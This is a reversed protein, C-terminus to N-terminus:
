GDRQGAHRRLFPLLHALVEEPAEEAQLHGADIPAGDVADAWNRWIDIPTEGSTFRSQEWTVFVPCQLRRGAKRDAADHESDITAGARYDNFVASRVEAREFAARYAAVAAPSLRDLYRAMRRLTWDFFYGPDGGVLREPLDAPQAFLFWHYAGMAFAKDARDWMEITPIVTLSFFGAVLDPRDLALRYGVRAGRDHGVVAFREFGLAQMLEAQDIALARKCFDAPGGPGALLRSEGYGRLDPAVVTFEKALVPAIVHWALHTQPYGHLLLVPPGDGGIAVRLRAAGVEIFRHAFGEFM